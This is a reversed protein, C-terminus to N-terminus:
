KLRATEIRLHTPFCEHMLEGGNVIAMSFPVQERRAGISKQPSTGAILFSVVFIKNSYLVFIEKSAEVKEQSWCCSMM